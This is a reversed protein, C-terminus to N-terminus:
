RLALELAWGALGAFAALAAALTYLRVRLAVLQRELDDVSEALADVIMRQNRHDHRQQDARSALVALQQEDSLPATV